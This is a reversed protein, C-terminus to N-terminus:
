DRRNEVVSGDAADIKVKYKGDTSRVEAEWVLTNRHDDLELETIRGPRTGTIKDVAQAFDLKAAALRRQWKTKSRDSMRSERPGGQIRSGDASVRWKAHQGDTRAIKVEWYAGDDESDIATVTGGSSQALATRGAHVLADNGTADPRAQGAQATAPTAGASTAPASEHANGCATLLLGAVLVALLAPRPTSRYHISM